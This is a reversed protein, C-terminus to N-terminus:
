VSSPSTGPHASAVPGATRHTLNSSTPLTYSSSLFRLWVPAWYMASIRQETVWIPIILWCPPVKNLRYIVCTYSLNIKFVPWQHLFTQFHSSKRNLQIPCFHCFMSSLFTNTPQLNSSFCKIATLGVPLSIHETKMQKKYTQMLQQFIVPFSRAPHFLLMENWPPKVTSDLHFFLWNNKITFSKSSKRKFCGFCSFSKNLLGTCM